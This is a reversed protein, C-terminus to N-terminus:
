ADLPMVTFGVSLFASDQHHTLIKSGEKGHFLGYEFPAAKKQNSVKASMYLIM